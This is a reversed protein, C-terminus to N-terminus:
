PPLRGPEADTAAIGKLEGIISSLRDQLDIEASRAEIVRDLAAAAIGAIMNEQADSLALPGRARRLRSNFDEVALQTATRSRRQAADVDALTAILRDAVRGVAAKRQQAALAADIAAARGEASEALAALQDRLRDRRDPDDVPMGQVMLTVHPHNMALRNKFQVIREMGAMHSIAASELPNAAGHAGRSAVGAAGRVQAIGKLGYLGLGALVADALALHDACAAFSQLAQLLAGMESVSTMATIATQSASQAFADLHKREAASRLLRAIKALLEERDFPKVVYDDGGAEYGQLRDEIRDRGSVFIVPVEGGVARQRLQRCVEYGDIDPLEVDLLILDPGEGAAIMLADRGNEAQLLRYKDELAAEFLERSFADDDVILIRAVDSM